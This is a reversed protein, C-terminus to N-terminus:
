RRFATAIDHRTLVGLGFIVIFYVFVGCAVLLALAGIRAALSVGAAFAPALVAMLAILALGMLVSAAIILPLNRRLRRDSAYHGRRSLTVALLGANTWGAVTTALAIGVHGWYAFLALAVAINIIVAIVAYRMPTRTDERAFFGPSFVKILVFAPLGAAFAALASATAAADAPSFEGRVFLVSVVPAPTAMLAIAAPLTLLLSFEVARNQSNDLGTSDAARLRRSLDPLLAIGIAIGIVGLPLQYVRDAYYLWAPASAQWSAIITSVFLNIQTVGGAIVGPIGLQVLRRVSDNYRPRAPLLTIGARRAAFWLAAFQLLGAASVGWALAMGSIPRNGWGAAIVAALVAILVVNLIVPAAAAAAFRGLSNLVGALMAVLSMFLLYPLCIRTLVVALDFKDPDALFGPAFGYMVVPMAIEAIILFVLLAALLSAFVDQAFARAATAGDGELRKAFLPVFASNFAGEGFLRRFLNPFRLAVVFADAVPGAGLVSALLVDRVFGLVRSMLTWAAVTSASKLLSM